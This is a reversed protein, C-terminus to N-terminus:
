LRLTMHLDYDSDSSNDLPTSVRHPAGELAPYASARSNRPPQSYENEVHSATPNEAQSRRVTAMHNRHFSMNQSMETPGIWQRQKKQQFKKVLKKYVLPGCVVLLVALLVLALLISMVSGTGLGPPNPDQCTIFVRQCTKEQLQHCQSLNEQSCSLGKSTARPDLVQHSIFQGCQHEQCVEEWRARSKVPTKHCLPLWQKALRVEVSGACPGSGGVLRSQVKPQFGSCVLALAQGGDRHQDKWFCPELLGCSTNEVKWRIPLSGSAGPHPGWPAEPEPLHEVFSGCQVQACIRDELGQIRGRDESSVLGALSGNYFEVAGACRLGWPGPVLQLVPPATPAPPATPPPSTPPPTTKPELCILSLSDQPGTEETCNSLSGVQGRCFIQPHSQLHNFIPLYGLAVADGCQLSQCQESAWKEWDDRNQGRSLRWSRSSVTRQEGDYPVKVQGQCRSNSANLEVLGVADDSGKLEGLRCSTALVGLLYLAALPPLQSGM